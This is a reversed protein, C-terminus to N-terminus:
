STEGDASVAASFAGEDEIGLVLAVLDALVQLAYLGLGVPVCLYIPWLKPGWVSDSTWGREWAVHWMEYGYWVMMGLVALCTLLVVIQLGKRLGAPLMMPILEVNVHGRLRQVYPLGLLTAAVMMFTVTETQWITSEGLWYRQYLMQCTILISALILLAAIVGCITSIWGVFRLFPNGGHGAVARLSSSSM